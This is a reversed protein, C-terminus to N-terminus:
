VNNNYFVKDKNKNEIKECNIYMKKYTGFFKDWHNFYFSYNCNKEGYYHHLCHDTNDNIFELKIKNTNDHLFNAWLMTLILCAKWIYANIPIIVAPLTFAINEMNSDIWHSLRASWSIPYRYKHHVYHIKKYLFPTHAARHMLYFIFDQLFLYIGPSIITYFKNYENNDFYLYGIKNTYVMYIFIYSVSNGISWEYLTPIEFSSTRIKKNVILDNVKNSVFYLSYDSLNFFVYYLLFEFITYFTQLM